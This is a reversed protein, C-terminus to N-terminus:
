LIIDCIEVHNIGIKTKQLVDRSPIKEDLKALATLLNSPTQDPVKLTAKQRYIEEVIM